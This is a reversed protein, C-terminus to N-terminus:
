RNKFQLYSENNQLRYIDRTLIENWERIINVLAVFINTILSWLLAVFSLHFRMKISYRQIGHKSINWINKNVNINGCPPSKQLDKPYYRVWMGSSFVVGSGASIVRFCFEERRNEPEVFTLRENHGLM